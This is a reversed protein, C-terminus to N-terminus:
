VLDVEWVETIEELQDDLAVRVEALRRDPEVTFRHKFFAMTEPDPDPFACVLTIQNRKLLDVLAVVNGSDLDKLEDLAWIINVNAGRRIRNIFAVFITALVLYSLGNSSVAELDSARKFIRRNGNETVEGQIRILNKFNASIGTKVEWHELLREITLAFEPPPLENSGSGSWVRYAEAMECIAPWYKLEKITSVVEVGIKSISEFALSTDLHEQLERNFQQVRLHFEEMSRHFGNVLGAITVADSYLIRQTEQHRTSFWDKFPLIWERSPTPSLSGLSTQLYQEPPTGQHLRFGSAVEGLTRRISELLRNVEKIKQNAFSSLMDFTWSADYDSVCVDPYDSMTDVRMSVSKHEAYLGTLMVGVQKCQDQLSQSRKQWQGNLESIAQSLKQHAARSNNGEAVLGDYKPWENDKWYQWQQVEKIFGRIAALELTIRSIEEDVSKVKSIDVGEKQLVEDREADFAAITSQLQSHRVAIDANIFHIEEDRKKQKDRKNQAHIDRLKSSEARALDDFQLLRQKATLLTKEANDLVHKAQTLAMLKSADVQRKAEDVEAQTSVTQAHAKQVAVDHTRRAVDASERGEGLTVLLLRAKELVSQAQKLRTEAVEVERGAVGVDSAPHADLRELDLSLGFFTNDSDVM